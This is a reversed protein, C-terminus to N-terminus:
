ELLDHSWAISAALTQRRAAAGRPGRVLLAFRDDLEAVIQQPILTRLWAAALELALPIGDLRACMARVAFESSADLTFWPRVLSAREVFLTLAEDEAMSPLRWVAEGAVGLPERSTTLVAAERFPAAVEDAREDRDASLAM